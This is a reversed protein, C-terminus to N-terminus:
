RERMWTKGCTRCHVALNSGKIKHRRV